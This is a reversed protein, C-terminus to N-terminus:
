RAVTDLSQQMPCLTNRALKKYMFFSARVEIYVINNPVKITNELILLNRLKQFNYTKIKRFDASAFSSSVCLPLSHDYLVFVLHIGRLFGRVSLM